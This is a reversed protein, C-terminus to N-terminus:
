APRSGTGSAPSALRECETWLRGAIAADYSEPASQTERFRDYYRGTVKELDPASALRLIPAAGTKPNRLFYKVFRFGVPLGNYLDTRIAGPHVSNVTVNSGGLRRALEYSLLLSALKSNSYARLFGYEREGQLNDFEVHGGYHTASGVNVVRSPASARLVPLLLNTLLFPALVNVAFHSELGGATVRRHFSLVGANNILLDLRDHTRQFGDAFARISAPDALDVKMVEAEPAGNGLLEPRLAAGRGEDRCALVVHAGLRALGRATERGIGSTPGTVISVRGELTQNM